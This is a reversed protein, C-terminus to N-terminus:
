NVAYQNTHNLHYISSLPFYFPVGHLSFMHCIHMYKSNLAGNIVMEILATNAHILLHHHKSKIGAVTSNYSLTWWLRKRTDPYSFLRMYLILEKELNGYLHMYNSNLKSKIVMKTQAENCCM